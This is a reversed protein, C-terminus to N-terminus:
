VKEALKVFGWTLVFFALSGALYAFDMAGGRV